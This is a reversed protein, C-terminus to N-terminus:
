RVSRKNKKDYYQKMLPDAYVGIDVKEIAGNNALFEELDKQIQARAIDKEPKITGNM